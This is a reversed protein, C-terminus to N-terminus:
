QVTIPVGDAIAEGVIKRFEELKGILDSARLFDETTKLPNGPQPHGPKAPQGPQPPQEGTVARRQAAAEREAEIEIELDAWEDDTLGLFHQVVFQLPLGLGKWATAADAQSKEINSRNMEDDTILPVFKLAYEAKLPDIGLLALQLDCIERYGAALVARR